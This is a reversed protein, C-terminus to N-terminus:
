HSLAPLPGSDPTAIPSPRLCDRTLESVRTCGMLAM